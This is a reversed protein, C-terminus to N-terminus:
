PDFSMRLWFAFLPDDFLVAGKGTGQEDLIGKAKLANLSSHLAPASAIEYKALLGKQFLSSKERAALRLARQQASTLSNLLTQYAYANQRAVTELVKEVDQCRVHLCAQAVLHFCVMQVYNPTDQVLKRLHEIAQKECTIGVTAFRHVVWDTFEPGFAPFEITQCSRYLPRSPNNLM